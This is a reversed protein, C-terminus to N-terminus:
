WLSRVNLYLSKVIKLSRWLSKVEGSGKPEYTLKYYLYAETMWTYTHQWCKWVDGRFGCPQNFGFKVHLRRPIPSCFNTWVTWTVHCLNGGHGYTTFVKYFFDGSGFPWHGQFKTHLMPYELVVLNTCIIVRPQGHGTKRCPWIYDSISKYPFFTFCHIKWFSNHEIIDFNTSATFYILVHVKM